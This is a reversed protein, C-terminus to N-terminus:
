TPWLQGRSRECVSLRSAKVDFLGKDVRWSELMEFCSSTISGLSRVSTTRDAAM